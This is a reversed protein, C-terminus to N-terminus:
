INITKLANTLEDSSNKAYRWERIYGLSNCIFITQNILKEMRYHVHGFIAYKVSFTSILQGYEKSGLFGNFYNWLESPYKVTFDVHPVVHTLFIIKKNQYEKLLKELKAYFFRHVERIPRDWRIFVKDMWLREKYEMQDFAELSVEPHGFSYDYWGADGIVVWDENIQYPARALNRPFSLLQHYIAWTSKDPHKVNWLDHNGPVFLCNVGTLEELQHLIQLTLQYDNSIDGPIIMLEIRKTIILNCLDLLLNKERQSNIDVHLDSLIGIKM